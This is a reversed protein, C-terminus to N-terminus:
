MLIGGVHKKLQYQRLCSYFKGLRGSKPIGEYGGSVFQYSSNSNIKHDLIQQFEFLMTKDVKSEQTLDFALLTLFPIAVILGLINKRKM